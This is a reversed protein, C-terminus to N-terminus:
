HGLEVNFTYPIVDNVLPLTWKDPNAHDYAITPANAFLLDTIGLNMHAHWIGKPITVQNLGDRTLYFEQVVGKTASDDRDDYLALLMEGSLVMYRDDHTKHLGWGKAKRPRCSGMYIYPAGAAWYDQRLDILELIVGREDGVVATRNLVVGDILVTQERENPRAAPAGRTGGHTDFTM